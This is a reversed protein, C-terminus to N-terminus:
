KKIKEIFIYAIPTPHEHAFRLKILHRLFPILTNVLFSSTTHTNDQSASATSVKTNQLYTSPLTIINDLETVQFQCASSPQIVESIQPKFDPNEVVFKKHTKWSNSQSSYVPTDELRQFIERQRKYREADHLDTVLISITSIFFGCALSRMITINEHLRM